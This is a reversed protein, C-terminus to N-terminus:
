ARYVVGQMSRGVLRRGVLDVTLDMAELPLFGMVCREGLVVAEVCCDREECELRLPGIRAVPIRRGISVTVPSVRLAELEFGLKRAVASTVILYTASLDVRARIPVCQSTMVNSLVFEAYMEGLEGDM